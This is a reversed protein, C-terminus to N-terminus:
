GSPGLIGAYLNSDKEDRTREIEDVNGGAFDDGQIHALEHIITKVQMDRSMRANIVITDWEPDHKVFGRVTTPLDEYIVSYGM